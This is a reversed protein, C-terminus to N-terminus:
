VPGKDRVVKGGDMEVSMGRSDEHAERRGYGGAGAIRILARIKKVKFKHLIVNQACLSIFHL